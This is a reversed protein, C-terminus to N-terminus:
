ITSLITSKCQSSAILSIAIAIAIAPAKLKSCSLEILIEIQEIVVDDKAGTPRWIGFKFPKETEFCKRIVNQFWFAVFYFAWALDFSAFQDYIMILM